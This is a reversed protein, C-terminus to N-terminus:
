CKFCITPLTLHTYSVPLLLASVFLGMGARVAYRNPRQWARRMHAVAFVILPLTILLGLALHLLFMLLYFYNQQIESSFAELLSIAVLYVSNLALLSFLLIIASLLRGLRANLVPIQKNRDTHAPM